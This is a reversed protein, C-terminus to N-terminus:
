KKELLPKMEGLCDDSILVVASAGRLGTSWGVDVDNGLVGPAFINLPTNKSTSYFDNGALGADVRAWTTGGNTTRVVVGSPGCMWAINTNVAWASNLDSTVPSTQQTWTGQAFLATTIFLMAAILYFKKM